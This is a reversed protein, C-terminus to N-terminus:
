LPFARTLETLPSFCLSSCIRGKTLAWLAATMPSVISSLPIGLSASFRRSIALSITSLASCNPIGRSSTIMSGRAIAMLASPWAPRSVILARWSIRSLRPTLWVSPSELIEKPSGSRVDILAMKRAMATKLPKVQGIQSGVSHSIRLAVNTVSRKNPLSSNQMFYREVDAFFNPFLSVIFGIISLSSFGPVSRSRIFSATTEPFRLIATSYVWFAM